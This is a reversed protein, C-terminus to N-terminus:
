ALFRARLSIDWSFPCSPHPDGTYKENSSYRKQGKRVQSCNLHDTMRGVLSRIVSFLISGCSINIEMVMMHFQWSHVDHLSVGHVGNECLLRIVLVAHHCPKAMVLLNESRAMMSRYTFYRDVARCTVRHQKM